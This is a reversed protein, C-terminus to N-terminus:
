KQAPKPPAPHPTQPREQQGPVAREGPNRQEDPNRRPPPMNPASPRPIPPLPKAM